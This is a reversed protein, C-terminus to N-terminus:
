SGHSHNECVSVRSRKCGTFRNVYESRLGYGLVSAWHVLMFEVLKFAASIKVDDAVDDDEFVPLETEHMIRSIGASYWDLITWEAQKPITIASRRYTNKRKKLSTRISGECVPTTNDQCSDRHDVALSRAEVAALGENVSAIISRLQTNGEVMSLPNTKRSIQLLMQLDGARILSKPDM